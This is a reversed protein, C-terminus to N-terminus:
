TDVTFQLNKIVSVIHWLDEINNKSQDILGTQVIM